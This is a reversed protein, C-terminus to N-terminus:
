HCYIPLANFSSWYKQELLPLSDFLHCGGHKETMTKVNSFCENMLANSVPEVIILDSKPAIKRCLQKIERSIKPPTTERPM